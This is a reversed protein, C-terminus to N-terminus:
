GCVIRTIAMDRDYSVTLRDARYDMTMAAGPPGWRLQRAGTLQLLQAGMSAMAAAGVHLQAPQADCIDAVLPAREVAAGAGCAALPVSCLLVAPWPKMM